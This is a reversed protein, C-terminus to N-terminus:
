TQPPQKPQAPPRQPAKGRLYRLVEQVPMVDGFKRDIDSLNSRHVYEDRDGVAEAPVIPRIAYQITETAMARVAGSTSFGCLILTDCQLERLIALLNSDSYVSYYKTVIHRDEKWTQIRPDLRIAAPDNSLAEM